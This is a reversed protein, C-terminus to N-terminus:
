GVMDSLQAYLCILETNKRVDRERAKRIMSKLGKIKAKPKGM